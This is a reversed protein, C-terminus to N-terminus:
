KDTISRVQGDKTLAVNVFDGHAVKDDAVYVDIHVKVSTNGTAVVYGYCSVLNGVMVPKFFEIDTAARTASFGKPALHGAALDMLSMLWGGFISGKPNTDRPMAIMQIVLEGKM